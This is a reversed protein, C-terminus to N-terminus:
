VKTPTFNDRLEDESEPGDAPNWSDTFEPYNPNTMSYWWYVVFIIMLIMLYM